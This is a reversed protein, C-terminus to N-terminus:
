VAADLGRMNVRERQNPNVSPRFPMEVVEARVPVGPTDAFPEPLHVWYETEVVSAEDRVPAMAINALLEPSYWSSPVNWVPEGEGTVFVLSFDPAYNTIPK